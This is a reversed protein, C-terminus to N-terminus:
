YKEKIKDIRANEYGMYQIKKRCNGSDFCYSGSLKNISNCKIVMNRHSKVETMDNCIIRDM